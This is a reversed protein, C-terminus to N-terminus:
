KGSGAWGLRRVAWSGPNFVDGVWDPYDIGLVQKTVAEIPRDWEYAMINPMIKSINSSPDRQYDEWSQAGAARGLVPMGWSALAAGAGAYGAATGVTGAAGGWGAGAGAGGAGAGGSAGAGAAAGGGYTLGQSMPAIGLGSGGYGAAPGYTLGTGAATSGGYTLGTGLSSAAGLSPGVATTAPGSLSTTPGLTPTAAGPTPGVGPGATVPGSSPAVPATTPTTPLVKSPKMLYILGATTGLTTVGSTIQGQKAADRDAAQNAVNIEYRRKDEDTREQATKKEYADIDLQRDDIRKLRAVAVVDQEKQYAFAAAQQGRAWAAEEQQFAYARDQYAQQAVMQERTLTASQAMQAQTLGTSVENMRRAEDMQAQTLGTNVENMRRAEEDRAETLSLGRNAAQRSALAGIEGRYAAELEYPEVRQGAARRANYWRSIKGLSSTPITYQSTAM